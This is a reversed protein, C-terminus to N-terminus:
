NVSVKILESYQQEFEIFDQETLPDIKNKLFYKQADKQFVRIFYNGIRLDSSYIKGEKISDKMVCDMEPAIFQNYNILNSKQYAELLISDNSKVDLYFDKPIFVCEENRNRITYVLRENDITIDIECKNKIPEQGTSVCGINFIFLIFVVILRYGKITQLRQM